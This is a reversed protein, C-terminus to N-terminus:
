IKPLDANDVKYFFKPSISDNEERAENYITSVWHGSYTLLITDGYIEFQGRSYSEEEVCYDHVYFTKDSNFYIDAFCCDCEFYFSCSDM